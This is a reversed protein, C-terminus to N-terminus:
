GVDSTIVMEDGVVSSGGSVSVQTLNSHGLTMPEGFVDHMTSISDLQELTAKNSSCSVLISAGGVSSM